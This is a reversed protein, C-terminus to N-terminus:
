YDFLNNTKVVNTNTVLEIYDSVFRFHVSLSTFLSENMYHSVIQYSSAGINQYYDKNISKRKGMNPFIGSVFLCVDGLEKAQVTSKPNLKLYSEAFSDSPLFDPKEVFSALLMVVYAEVDLPLTYGTANKTEQMADYFTSFYVDKM